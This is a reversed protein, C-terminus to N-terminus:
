EIADQQVPLQKLNFPLSQGAPTVLKAWVSGAISDRLFKTSGDCMNVVFGGPHGSNPYPSSGEVSLNRYGFNIGEPGKLNAYKWGDGDIGQSGNSTLPGGSPPPNLKWCDYAAGCVFGSAIFGMHNVFPSAWTVPATVAVFGSSPTYGALVNESLMVTTSMGDTISSSTHNYDWPARGSNTGLGFVGTKRANGANLQVFNAASSDAWVVPTGAVFGPQTNVGDGGKWAVPAYLSFGFGMNAVYSLNGHGTQKTNDDPCTLISVSNDAIVINSATNQASSLTSWYNGNKDYDNAAAEEGIYPLLEIVWSYLPGYAYSSGAPTATPTYTAPANLYKYIESDKYLGSALATPLEGFVGANPLKNKANLFGQMGLGLQRMNNLCQTRRGAERAANVAPLLLGVLVGIIAIVVLLEILTFGRDLRRPRTM